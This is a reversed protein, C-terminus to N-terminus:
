AEFSLAGYDLGSSEGYRQFESPHGVLVTRIVASDDAFGIDPVTDPIIDTGKHLYMLGFLAEALAGVDDPTYTGDLCDEVFRVLFRAQERLHPQRPPNAETIRALVLPLEEEFLAIDAPTIKESGHRVFEQIDNMRLSDNFWRIRGAPPLQIAFGPFFARLKEGRLPESSFGDM